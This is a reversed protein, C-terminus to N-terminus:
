DTGCRNTDAESSALRAYRISGTNSRRIAQWNSDSSNGPNAARCPKRAQGHERNRVAPHSQAFGGRVVRIVLLFNKHRPRDPLPNVCM